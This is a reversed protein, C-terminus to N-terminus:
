RNITQELRTYFYTGFSFISNLLPCHQLIMYTGSIHCYYYKQTHYSTPKLKDHFPFTKSSCNQKLFPIELSIFNENVGQPAIFFNMIAEQPLIHFKM